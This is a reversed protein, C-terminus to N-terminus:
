KVNVDIPPSAIGNAIVVLQSPGRELTDPIDFQTTGREDPAVSRNSHDHTRCYTAHGTDTNTVRVIPFNTSTQLDDGYYAGQSIGNMRRVAVSYVRGRYLSTVPSTDAVPTTGGVLDPAALIVPVANETVGPAPTYLEIDTQQDTMFIEGTPLVLLSYMYSTTSTAEATTSTLETFTSGHVEYFHVPTNFVGPSAIVLVDGNPLLAAPGDAVDLGMVFDPLASWTMTATDFVANHQTGGFALVTGDTRLVEPGVEHSGSNDPNTDALKDPVDGIPSWRGTTPDYVESLKLNSLNNADVTLVRGDPLLAWSEEDHIDAKGDGTPLWTLNVPDLLASSKSCCDSLMFTGNALVIGSADGISTWGAPPTIKKWADTRPDYIAGLTTWVPPGGNYEGGEVIFRGDPLTASAYYLPQYGPVGPAIQSWTGHEYGGNVDPTLKWWQTTELEQVLVTGDNMLAPAAAGAFPASNALPRWTQPAPPPAAPLQL